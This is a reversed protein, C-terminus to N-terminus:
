FGNVLKDNLDVITEQLNEIEFEKSAIQEVLLEKRKISWSIQKKEFDDREKKGYKEADEYMRLEWERLSHNSNWTELESWKSMGLSELEAKWDSMLSLTDEM